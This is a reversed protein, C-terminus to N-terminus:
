DLMNEVVYVHCSVHIWLDNFTVDVPDFFSKMIATPVIQDERFM